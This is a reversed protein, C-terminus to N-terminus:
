RKRAEAPGNIDMEIQKDPIKSAYRYGGLAEPTIPGMLDVFILQFPHHIQSQGDQLPGVPPKKELTCVNCDPM